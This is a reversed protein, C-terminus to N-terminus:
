EFFLQVVNVANFLAHILIPVWLCRTMEYALTLLIAFLWLPMLAPLNMHVVAFLASSILGAFLPSSFRKLVGYLYGRFLTEEVLPAAVCALIVSLSIVSPSSANRLAEVAKQSSLTGLKENLFNASHYGVVLNCLVFSLFTGSLAVLIITPWKMQRLGLIEFADRVVFIQIMVFTMIGIFGFYVLQMIGATIQEVATKTTISDEPPAAAQPYAFVLIPNILFFSLPFWVLLLDLRLFASGIGPSPEKRFAGLSAYVVLGVILTLLTIIEFDFLIRRAVQEHM